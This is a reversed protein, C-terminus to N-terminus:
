KTHSEPKMTPFPIVDRIGAANTLYMVLRDIGMGWGATPPLGFELANIFVEDLRMAEEDGESRSKLQELFRSRQDIPDNLETYANCIETSNIFLEFRESIGPRSRDAKALPSMVLPHGTLFTPNICEPEIYHGILKDLVRALTRPEGVVIGHKECHERLADATEEREFDEDRLGLGARKNLEAVIDMRRFPREFNIELCTGSKEPSYVLRPSKNVSLVLKHVMDETMQMIDECDAYAMYAECSTFEPNHTPDIGENRFVKGLEYVRELGGVVLEKLYLEPSVRMYLDMKLENHHTIFPKAAAGGPITNLMPTEVEVFDRENFYSRIFDIVRARTRFRSKVENNIMMDLYRKRYRLETDKLGYFESPITRLCPALVLIENVYVTQEGTKTRGPSGSYGIIDGRKLTQIYELKKPDKSLVDIVLQIFREGSSVKYFSFRSLHRIAMIRGAAQVMEDGFCQGPEAETCRAIIEDISNKVHFVYPYLVKGSRKEEMAYELRQTYYAEDSVQSGNEM